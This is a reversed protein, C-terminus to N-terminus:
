FLPFYYKLFGKPVLFGFPGFKYKTNLIVINSQVSFFVNMSGMVPEYTLLLVGGLKSHNDNRTSMPGVINM